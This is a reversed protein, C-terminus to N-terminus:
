DVIEILKDKGDIYIYKRKCFQCIFTKLIKFTLKSIDFDKFELCSNCNPCKPM